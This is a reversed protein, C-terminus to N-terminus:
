LAAFSRVREYGDVKFETFKEVNKESKKSLMNLPNLSSLMSSASSLINNNVDPQHGQIFPEIIYIGEAGNNNVYGKIEEIKDYLINIDERLKKHNMGNKISPPATRKEEQIIVKEDKKKEEEEEEEEEVVAEPVPAFNNVDFKQVYTEIEEKEMNTFKEINSFMHQIAEAKKVKDPINEDIVKLITKQIDIPEKKVDDSNNQIEVFNEKVKKSNNYSTIMFQIM